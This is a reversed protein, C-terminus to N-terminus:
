IWDMGEWGIERLDMRIRDEWRHRPRELLRKGKHKGVSVKYMSREEELRAVHGAHM